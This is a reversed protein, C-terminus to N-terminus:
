QADVGMAFQVAYSVLTGVVMARSVTMPVYAFSMGKRGKSLQVFQTLPVQILHRAYFQEPTEGEESSATIPMIAEAKAAVGAFLHDTVYGPVVASLWVAIYAMSAFCLSDFNAARKAVFVGVMSTANLTTGILRVFHNLAWRDSEEGMTLLLADLSVCSDVTNSKTALQLDGVLKHTAKTITWNVWIWMICLGCVNFGVAIAWVFAWWMSLIVSRKVHFNDSGGNTYMMSNIYLADLLM